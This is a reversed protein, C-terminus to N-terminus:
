RTVRDFAHRAMTLVQLGNATAALAAPILPAGDLDRGAGGAVNTIARLVAQWALATLQEGWLDVVLAPGVPRTETAAVLGTPRTPDGVAFTVQVVAREVEDCRVPIFVMLLGDTLKLDIGATEILLANDGEVWLLADGGTPHAATRLLRLAVGAAIPIEPGVTGPKLPDPPLLGPCRLRLQDLLEACPDAAAPRAPTSPRPATRRM